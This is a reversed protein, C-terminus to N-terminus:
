VRRLYSTAQSVRREEKRVINERAAVVVSTKEASVSVRIERSPADRLVLTLLHITDFSQGFQFVAMRPSRKVTGADGLAGLPELVVDLFIYPLRIKM